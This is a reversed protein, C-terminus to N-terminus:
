GWKLLFMTKTQEDIFQVVMGERSSNHSNLWSDIEKENDAYFKYDTIIAYLGFLVFKDYM